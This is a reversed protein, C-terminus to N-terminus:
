IPFNFSIVDMEEEGGRQGGGRGEKQSQSWSIKTDIEVLISIVQSIYKLSPMDHHMFKDVRM